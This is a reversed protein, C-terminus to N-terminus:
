SLHGKQFVWNLVYGLQGLGFGIICVLPDLKLLALAVAFLVLVWLFRHAAGLYLRVMSKGPSLGGVRSIGRKRLLTLILATAGGYLAAVGLYTGSALLFITAVIVTILAQYLLVSRAANALDTIGLANENAPTV